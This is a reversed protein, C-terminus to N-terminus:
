MVYADNGGEGGGVIYEVIYEFSPGSTMFSFWKQTNETCQRRKIQIKSNRRLFM